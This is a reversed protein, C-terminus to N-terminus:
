FAYGLSVTFSKFNGDDEFWADNLGRQYSFDLNYKNKWWVGIGLKYGYDLCDAGSFWDEEDIDGCECEGFEGYTYNVFAGAHADITIGGLVNIDYKFGVTVPSLQILHGMYEYGSCDDYFDNELEYGRSALGLEMGWYFGLDTFPKQFGVNIDYGLKNDADEGDYEASMFNLGTRVFWTTNSDSKQIKNSKVATSSYGYIQANVALVAVLAMLTLFIKKM